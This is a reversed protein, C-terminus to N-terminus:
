TTLFTIMMTKKDTHHEFGFKEYFGMEEEYAILVKRAYEEYVKLMKEVLAKGIGKDQYFPNVLLYHFYATMVKDSLANMLGVLKEGDWATIVTDSNLMAIKLKDPYKGSSWNVSLFLEELEKEKFEKIMKYEIM